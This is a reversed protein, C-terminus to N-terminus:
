PYFKLFFYMLPSTFILSDLVDLVGGTGPIINSDKVKADRKLLSEALDGLQAFLGITLGLLIAVPYSIQLRSFSSFLVTTLCTFFLGGFLGEWTKNPSLAPFIKRKGLYKGFFYGGIDYAKTTAIVFILWVRGWGYNIIILPSLPFVIYLMGLLTTAINVIANNQKFFAQFFTLYLTSLLCIHIYIAPLSRTVHLFLLLLFATGCTFGIWSYPSLGKEECISYFEYLATNFVLIFVALLLYNLESDFSFYIVFGVVAIAISSFLIRSILNKSM